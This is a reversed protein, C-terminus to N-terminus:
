AWVSAGPQLHTESHLVDDRVWARHKKGGGKSLRTMCKMINDLFFTLLTIVAGLSLTLFLGLSSVNAFGLSIHVRQRRCLAQAEPTPPAQVYKHLNEDDPRTMYELLGYQILSMITSHWFQVEIQWQNDPLPLQITDAAVTRAAVLHRVNGSTQVHINGFSQLVNAIVSATNVQM